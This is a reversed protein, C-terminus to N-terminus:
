HSVPVGVRALAELFAEPDELSVALRNCSLPLLMWVWRRRKLRVEVVNERAGILGVVGILNTRWGVGYLLPWSRRGAGEIDALAFRYNFLWGFRATLSDGTLEVYSRQPTGGFLSLLAASRPSRLIPFRTAGSVTTEMKGGMPIQSM